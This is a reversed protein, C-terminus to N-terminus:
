QLKLTLIKDIQTGFGYMEACPSDKKGCFLSVRVIYNGDLNKPANTSIIWVQKDSDYVVATRTGQNRQFDYIWADASFGTTEDAYMEDSRGKVTFKIEEEPAYTEKFGDIYAFEYRATTKWGKYEGTNFPNFVPTFGKEVNAVTPSGAIELANVITPECYTGLLLLILSAIMEVKM